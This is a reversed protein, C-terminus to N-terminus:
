WEKSLCIHSRKEVQKFKIWILRHQNFFNLKELKFFFIVFKITWFYTLVALCPPFIPSKLLGNGSFAPTNYPFYRFRSPFWKNRYTLCMCVNQSIKNEEWSLLKKGARWFKVINWLICQVINWLFCQTIRCM